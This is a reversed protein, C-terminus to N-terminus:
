RPAPGKAQELFRDLAQQHERYEARGAAIEREYNARFDRHVADLAATNGDWRALAGRILFGFLHTPELTLISDALARAGAPDGTHLRLMAAHYRADADVQELSAYAMLAMQTFQAIQATDGAESATMVRNYLRDFQERPTMQSLDPPAGGAGTAFPAVAAPAPPVAPERRVVLALVVAVLAIGIALPVWRALAPGTAARPTAAPAQGTVPRGCEPCFRVGAALPRGCGACPTGAAPAGCETCFRGTVARGCRACTTPTANVPLIRPRPTPSLLLSPGPPDLPATHPITVSRPM